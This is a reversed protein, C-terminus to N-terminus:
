QQLNRCIRSLDKSWPLYKKLVEPDKIDVNPLQEFLCQLYSFPNLGNEKATEILSYTVASADAGRPTNSFLWNKRGIVFPKISREARNNSIELRGDLLYRELYKRQKLSYGIAEGLKSKPLVLAENKLVWAFYAGILPKAEERRRKTREIPPLDRIEQEIQFLKNCYSLGQHITIAAPSGKTGLAKLAEDYKRRAHAWCGVLTISEEPNENDELKHYGAYGDTHLFGKFGKLFKKAYDGSRGQTYEYLVIPIDDRSTRYLWMYSQATAERGPERLVELVTEDAHLVERKILEAHMAEYLPKLWSSSAKIIWNALTQRSLNIGYRKFQQEQRYLPIAEVYKRSMIHALMSPSALSNRIAPNPMAAAIIPTSLENKECSRCAYVYRVHETVMVQAPIVKLEKRVEKKMEHLTEGCQPCDMEEVSLRYEITETPLPKIIKDKHGKKKKKRAVCVEGLDPESMVFAASESEVENFFSMQEFPSTHESSPGFRQARSLRYQEEYWSLRSSLEDVRTSLRMVQEELEERSLSALDRSINVNEM